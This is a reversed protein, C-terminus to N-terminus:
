SITITRYVVECMMTLSKLVDLIPSTTVEVCTCAFSYLDTAKSTAAKQLGYKSPDILEPATWPISSGGHGPNFDDAAVLSTSGFATIRIEGNTDVLINAQSSPSRFHLFM